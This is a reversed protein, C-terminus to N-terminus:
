AALQMPAVFRPVFALVNNKRMSDRQTADIIRNENRHADIGARFKFEVIGDFGQCGRMTNCLITSTAPISGADPVAEKLRQRAYKRPMM